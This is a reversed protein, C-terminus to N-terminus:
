QEVGLAGLLDLAERVEDASLGAWDPGDKFYDESTIVVPGVIEHGDTPRAFNLPLGKSYGDDDCWGRLKGYRLCSAPTGGILDELTHNARRATVVHAPKGPLKVVLNM